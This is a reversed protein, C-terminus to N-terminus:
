DHITLLKKLAFALLTEFTTGLIRPVKKINGGYRLSAM